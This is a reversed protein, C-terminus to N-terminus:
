QLSSLLDCDLSLLGHILASDFVVLWTGMRKKDTTKRGWLCLMDMLKNPRKSCFVRGATNSDFSLLSVMPLQLLWKSYSFKAAAPPLSSCITARNGKQYEFYLFTISFALHHSVLPCKRGRRAVCRGYVSRGASSIMLLEEVLKALCIINVKPLSAAFVM